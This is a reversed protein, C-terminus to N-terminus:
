LIYVMWDLKEKALKKEKTTLVSEDIIHEFDFGEMSCAMTDQVERRIHELKERYVSIDSM